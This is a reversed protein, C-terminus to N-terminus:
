LDVRRALQKRRLRDAHRAYVHAHHKDCMDIRLHLWADALCATLSAIVVM